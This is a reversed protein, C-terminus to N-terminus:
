QNRPVRFQNRDFVPTNHKDNAIAVFYLEGDFHKVIGWEDFYISERDTIYVRKGILNSSKM